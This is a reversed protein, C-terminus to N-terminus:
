DKRGKLWRSAQLLNRHQLAPPKRAKLRLSSPLRIKIELFGFLVTFTIKYSIKM